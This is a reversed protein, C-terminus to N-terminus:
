PTPDAKVQNLTETVMADIKPNALETPPAFADDTSRQVSFVDIMMKLVKSMADDKFGKVQAAYVEKQKGTTGGVPSGDIVDETQAAETKIRQSALKAQLVFQIAQAMAQGTLTVYVEAYKDGTIRGAKFEELLHLKMSQMLVDFAGTGDLAITTVDELTVDYKNM